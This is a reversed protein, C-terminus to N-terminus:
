DNQAISGAYEWAVFKMREENTEVRRCTRQATAEAKRKAKESAVVAKRNDKMKQYAVRRRVRAAEKMELYRPDMARREKASQYSAQRKEKALAKRSMISSGSADSSAETRETVSTSKNM